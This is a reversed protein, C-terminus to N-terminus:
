KLLDINFLGTIFDVEPKNLSELFWESLTLRQFVKAQVQLKSGDFFPETDYDRSSTMGKCHGKPACM